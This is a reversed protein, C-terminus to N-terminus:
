PTIVRYIRADGSSWALRYPSTSPDMEFHTGFLGQVDLIYNVGLNEV